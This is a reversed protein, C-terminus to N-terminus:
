PPLDASEEWAGSALAVTHGHDLVRGLVLRAGPVPAVGARAVEQTLEAIFANKLEMIRDASRGLREVAEESIGQDTAAAYDSWETTPLPVGYVRKFARAFVEGDMESSKTLTGDIDFLVLM